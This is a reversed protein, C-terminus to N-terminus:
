TGVLLLRGSVLLLGFVLRRFRYHDVHHFCLMGLATGGAASLAFSASSRRATPSALRQPM